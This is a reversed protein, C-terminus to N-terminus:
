EIRFHFLSGFFNAQPVQLTARLFKIGSLFGANEVFHKGCELYDLQKQTLEQIHCGLPILSTEDKSPM